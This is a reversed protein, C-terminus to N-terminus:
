DRGSRIMTGAIAGIALAAAIAMTKNQAIMSSATSVALAATVGSAMAQQRRRARARSLARIAIAVLGLFIALAAAALLGMVIGHTEAVFAAFAGLLAISALVAMLVVFGVVLADRKVQRAKAGAYASVLATMSNAHNM